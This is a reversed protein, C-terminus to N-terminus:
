CKVYYKGPLQKVLGRFELELLRVLGDSIEVGSDDLIKDIHIPEYTLLNYINEEHPHNFTIDRQFSGNKVLDLGSLGLDELVQSPSNVLIASNSRILNNTGESKESTINGPVAFVDRSENAALRATILSGGKAGSEIVVIAKSIGAIIRNRQPFSGLNALYGCRYESILAGGNEVIKEANKRSVNPSITDLGSALVAYTVGQARLTAHHAFTDVGHALGSVVVIDNAAFYEAFRETALKGYVTANRTGVIGICVSDNEQLKGKVFIYNPPYTIQKLLKPYEDDWISIISTKSLECKSIITDAQKVIEDNINFLDGQLQQIKKAADSKIFTTFDSYKDVVEKAKSASLGKILSLKIVEQLTWKNPFKNM